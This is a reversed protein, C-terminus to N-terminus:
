AGGVGGAAVQHHAFAHAIVDDDGQGLTAALVQADVVQYGRAHAQVGTEVAAQAVLDDGGAADTAASGQGGIEGAAHHDAAEGALAAGQAGVADVPAQGEADRGDVAVIDGAVVAEDNAQLQNGIVDNAVLGGFGQLVARLHQVGVRIGVGGVASGRYVAGHGQATALRGGGYALRGQLDALYQCRNGVRGAIVFAVRDFEGNGDAIPRAGVVEIGEIDGQQVVQGCFQIVQGQDPHEVLVAGGIVAAHIELDHTALQARDVAGVDVDDLAAADDQPHGAHDVGRRRGLGIEVVLGDHLPGAQIAGLGALTGADIPREVAAHEVVVLVARGQDYRHGLGHLNGADAAQRIGGGGHRGVAGLLRDANALHDAVPDHHQHGLAVVGIILDLNGQGVAQFEDGRVGQGVGQTNGENGIAAQDTIGVEDDAAGEVDVAVFVAGLGQRNGRVEGSGRRGPDEVGAAHDHHGIRVAALGDGEVQAVHGIAVAVIGVQFPNGQFEIHTDAVLRGNGGARLQGDTGPFDDVAGGPGGAVGHEFPHHLGAEGAQVFVDGAEVRVGGAAGARGGHLDVECLIAAQRGEVGLEGVVEGAAGGIGQDAHLDVPHGEARAVQGGTDGEAGATAQAHVELLQVHAGLDAHDILNGQGVARHDGAAIGGQGPAAQGLVEAAEGAGDDTDVTRDVALAGAAAHPGVLVDQAIVGAQAHDGAGQPVVGGRGGGTGHGIACAKGPM